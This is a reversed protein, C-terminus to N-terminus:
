LPGGITGTGCGWIGASSGSTCSPPPSSMAGDISNLDVLEPIQYEKGVTQGSLITKDNNEM